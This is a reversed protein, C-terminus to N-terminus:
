RFALSPEWRVETKETM